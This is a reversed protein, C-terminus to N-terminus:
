TEKLYTAPSWGRSGDSKLAEWWGSPDKVLISLIEGASFSLEDPAQAQYDYRFCSNLIAFFVRLM